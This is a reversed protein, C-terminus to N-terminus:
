FTSAADAYRTEAVRVSEIADTIAEEPFTESESGKRLCDALASWAAASTRMLEVLGAEHIEPVIESAEDLFESYMARFGSGGTGRKEIVQYAFRLLWQWKDVAKWRPLEQIWTTLAQIGHNRSGQLLNDANKVIASRVNEASVQVSVSEPAFLSGHHIFPPSLSFRAEVLKDRPVELLGPRETDSVLMTEGKEARQWAVIAHGPFHTSSKFYPLYFIDTLLLAPRGADLHADLADAAACKDQWTEWRFPVGLTSFVTEEFGMSRVHVIFPTDTGPIEVYTIGLGAGLGFCFAETLNLGHFELLDRIASSGCHRGPRHTHRFDFAGPNGQDNTQM